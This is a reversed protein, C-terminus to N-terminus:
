LKKMKEWIKDVGKQTRKLDTDNYIMYDAFKAKESTPLQSNKRSEAEEESVGRKVARNICTAHEASVVVIKDVFDQMGVEILLPADIVIVGKEIRGTQEKIVRVIEPHLVGSLMDLKQRDSFVEMALKRRDIEGDTIIDDGFLEIIKARLDDNERLLIHAIEDADIKVAGKEVFLDAVTTKGAAYGGTVGIILRKKMIM